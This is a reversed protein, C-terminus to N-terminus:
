NPLSSVCSNRLAFSINANQDPNSQFENPQTSVRGVFVVTAFRHSHGSLYIFDYCFFLFLVIRYRRFIRM